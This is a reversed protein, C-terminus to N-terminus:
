ITSGGDVSSYREDGEGIWSGTSIDNGSPSLEGDVVWSGASRSKARKGVSTSALSK